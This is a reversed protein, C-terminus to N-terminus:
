CRSPKKRRRASTKRQRKPRRPPRAYNKRAKEISKLSSGIRKRRRAHPKPHPENESRGIGGQKRTLAPINQWQVPTNRRGAIQKRKNPTMRAHTRVRIQLHYNM